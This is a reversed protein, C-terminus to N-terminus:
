PGISPAMVCEIRPSTPNQAASDPRKFYTLGPRVHLPLALRSESPALRPKALRRSARHSKYKSLALTMNAGGCSRNSLSAAIAAEPYRYKTDWLRRYVDFLDSVVELLCLQRSGAQGVVDVAFIDM